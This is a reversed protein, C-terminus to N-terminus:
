LSQAQSSSKGTHDNPGLFATAPQARLLGPDVGASAPEIGAVEVVSHGPRQGPCESNSHTRTSTDLRHRIDAVLVEHKDEDIQYLIRWERM